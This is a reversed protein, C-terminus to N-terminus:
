RVQLGAVAVLEHDKEISNGATTLYDGLMFGNAGAAFVLDQRDKLLQERGGMVGINKDPLFFRFM